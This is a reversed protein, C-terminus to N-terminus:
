DNFVVEQTTYNISVTGIHRIYCDRDAGVRIVKVIGNNIDFSLLNFADEDRTGITRDQDNNVNQKGCTVVIWLQNPYEQTTYVFDVHTHGCIWCIFHGGNTIFNQVTQQYSDFTICGDYLDQYTFKKSTFTCDIYDIGDTTQPVCHTAIVVHYGNTKADALVNALWTNQTTADTGSRMSDIVVLRIKKSPYDKYYYTNSGTHTVGWNSIYPSMFRNYADSMSCQGDYWGGSDDVLGDHNGIVTMINSAGAATWYSMGNAYSDVMDGTCISDDIDSVSDVFDVFRKLRTGDLHLDSIHALLLPSVESSMCHKAQKIKLSVGDNLALVSTNPDNKRNIYDTVAESIFWLDLVCPEYSLPTSGYNVMLPVSPSEDFSMYYADGSYTYVTRYSQENKLTFYDFYSGDQGYFNIKLTSDAPFISGDSTSITIKSGSALFAPYKKNPIMGVLNKSFPKIKEIKEIEGFVSTNEILALPTITTSESIRIYAYGSAKISESKDTVTSPTYIAKIQAVWTGNSDYGHVRTTQSTTTARYYYILEDTNVPILDTYKASTYPTIVGSESIYAGATWTISELLNEKGVVYKFDHSLDSKLDSVEPALAVQTWHGSTWSEATTIATTCRYLNGSYYVYDGVAYTGSTSYTPALVGSALSGDAGRPIGFTATNTEEDYSYTADSGAALTEAEVTMDLISSAATEVREVLLTLTPIVTEQSGDTTGEPHPSKEVVLLLNTSGLRVGSKEVVLECVVAGWEDTMGATTSISATNGSVTCSETFGFGSPKTGMLKVTAGTPVTYSLAGDCLKFALERGVDYQSLRLRPLTDNPTMNVNKTQAM